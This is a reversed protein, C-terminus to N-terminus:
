VSNPTRVQSAIEESTRFALRGKCTSQIRLSSTLRSKTSTSRGMLVEAWELLALRSVKEEEDREEAARDDYAEDNDVSFYDFDADDGKLFRWEMQKRWMEIGEEKSQPADGKDEAVIQGDPGREYTIAVNPETHSLADIKAESRLIDAELVGSFGKRRGEAEREAASQFRRVLRDYLLPDALELDGSFYNPNKQLWRMRRNKTRVFALSQGRPLLRPNVPKPASPSGGDEKSAEETM